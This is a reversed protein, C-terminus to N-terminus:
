NSTYMERSQCKTKMTQTQQVLRPDALKPGIVTVFTGRQSTRVGDGTLCVIWPATETVKDCCADYYMTKVYRNIATRMLGNSDGWSWITGDHELPLSFFGLSKALLLVQDMCRRLTSEACLLGMEGKKKGGECSAIAGLASPNFTSNMDSVRALKVTSFRKKRIVNRELQKVVDGDYMYTVM